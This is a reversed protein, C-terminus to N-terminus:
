RPSGSCNLKAKLTDRIFVNIEWVDALPKQTYPLTPVYPIPGFEPTITLYEAGQSKRNEAIRKWLNIHNELHTSWEPARPDNVQPGEEYGVRAHIHIARNIAIELNDPQDSLDSEHVNM